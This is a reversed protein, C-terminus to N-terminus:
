RLFGHAAVKLQGEFLAVAVKVHGGATVEVATRGSFQDVKEALVVVALSPDKDVGAPQAAEAGEPAGGKLATEALASHRGVSDKELPFLTEFEGGFSAPDNNRFRLMAAAAVPFAGVAGAAVSPAPMVFSFSFAAM